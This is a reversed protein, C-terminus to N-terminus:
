NASSMTVRVNVAVARGAPPPPYKGRVLQNVVCGRVAKWPEHAGSVHHFSSFGTEGFRDVVFGVEFVSPEKEKSATGMEGCRRVSPLLVDLAKTLAEAPYEGVAVKPAGLTVAARHGGPTPEAEGADGAGADVPSERSQRREAAALALRMGCRGRAGAHDRRGEYPIENCDTLPVNPFLADVDLGRLECVRAFAEAADDDAHAAIFAEAIENCAELKGGECALRASADAEADAPAADQVQADARGADPPSKCAVVLPLSLALVLARM